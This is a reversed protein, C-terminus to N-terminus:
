RRGSRVRRLAGAGTGLDEVCAMSPLEDDSSDSSDFPSTDVEFGLDETEGRARMREGM